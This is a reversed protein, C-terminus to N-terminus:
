RLGTSCKLSIVFKRAPIKLQIKCSAQLLQICGQVKLSFPFLIHFNRLTETLFLGFVGLFVKQKIKASIEKKPKFFGKKTAVSRRRLRACFRHDRACDSVNFSIIKAKALFQRFVGTLYKKKINKQGIDTKKVFFFSGFRNGCNKKLQIASRHTKVCESFFAFYLSNQHLLTQFGWFLVKKGIVKPVFCLM